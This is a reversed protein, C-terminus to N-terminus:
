SAWVAMYQGGELWKIRVPSREAALDCQAAFIGNDQNFDCAACLANITMPQNVPCKGSIVATQIREWIPSHDRQRFAQQRTRTIRNPNPKRPM